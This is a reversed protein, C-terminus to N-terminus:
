RRDSELARVLDETSLYFHVYVSDRELVEKTQEIFSLSYGEIIESLSQKNYAENEKKYEAVKIFSSTITAFDIITGDFYAGQKRLAM